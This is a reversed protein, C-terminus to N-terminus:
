YIIFSSKPYVFKDDFLEGEWGCVWNGKLYLPIQDTFFRYHDSNKNAIIEGVAGLFPLQFAFSETDQNNDNILKDAENSEQLSYILDSKCRAYNEEWIKLLKEEATIKQRFAEWAVSSAEEFPKSIWLKKATKLDKAFKIETNLTEPKHGLNSFWNISNLIDFIDSLEKMLVM